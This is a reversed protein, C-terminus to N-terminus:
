YAEFRITPVSTRLLKSIGEIDLTGNSVLEYDGIGRNPGATRFPSQGVSNNPQVVGCANHHRDGSSATALTVEGQSYDKQESSCGDHVAAKALIQLADFPTKLEECMAENHQGNGVFADPDAADDATPPVSRSVTRSRSTLDYAEQHTRNKQKRFQTYNGGRRSGAL